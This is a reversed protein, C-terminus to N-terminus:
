GRHTNLPRATGSEGRESLSLLDEIADAALNWTIGTGIGKLYVAGDRLHKVLKKYEARKGEGELAPVQLFEKCTPDTTLSEKVVELAPPSPRCRNWAAIAKPADAAPMQIVPAVECGDFEGPCFIQCDGYGNDDVFRPERHCWPCPALESLPPSTM